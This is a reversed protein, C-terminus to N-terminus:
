PILVKLCWGRGGLNELGGAEWCGRVFYVCGQREDEGDDAATMYSLKEM